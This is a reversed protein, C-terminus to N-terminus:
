GRKVFQGAIVGQGRRIVRITSEALVDYGDLIQIAVLPSEYKEDTSFMIGGRSINMTAGKFPVGVPLWATNLGQCKVGFEVAFRPFRRMGSPSSAVKANLPGVIQLFQDEPLLAPQLM